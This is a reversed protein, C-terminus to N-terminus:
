KSPTKDNGTAADSSSGAASGADARSSPSHDDNITTTPLNTEWSYNPRWEGWHPGEKERNKREKEAVLRLEQHLDLSDIWNPTAPDPRRKSITSRVSNRPRESITTTPPNTKLPYNPRWVGLNSGFNARKKRKEEAVRRLEQELGLSDIWNPKAPDPKHTSKGGGYRRSGRLKRSTRKKCKRVCRKRTARGKKNNM